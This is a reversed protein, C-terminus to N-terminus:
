IRFFAKSRQHMQLIAAPSLKLAFAGLFAMSGSFFNGGVNSTNVNAGIGFPAALNEVATIPGGAASSAFAVGNQYLVIHTNAGGGTYTFAVTIWSGQTVASNSTQQIVSAASEDLLAAFMTDAALVRFSFESNAAFDEKACIMRIAATDTVNIVAFVTWPNDTTGNGISLHAADAIRGFNSTGNFSQSYGLGLRSLRAQVSGDWTISNSFQSDDTVITRDYQGPTWLVRVDRGAISGVDRLFRQRESKRDFM